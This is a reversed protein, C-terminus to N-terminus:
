RLLLSFDYCYNVPCHSFGSVRTSPSGRPVLRFVHEHSDAQGVRVRLAGYSQTTMYEFGGYIIDDLVPKIGHWTCPECCSRLRGIGLPTM